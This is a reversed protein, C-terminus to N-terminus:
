SVKEEFCIPTVALGSVIRVEPQQWASVVLLAVFSTVNVKNNQEVISDM